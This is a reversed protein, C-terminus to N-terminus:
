GLRAVQHRERANLREVEFAVRREHAGDADRRTSLPQSGTQGRNGKKKNGNSLVFVCGFEDSM